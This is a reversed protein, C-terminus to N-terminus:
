WGVGSVNFGNEDGYRVFLDDDDDDDDHDQEVADNGM